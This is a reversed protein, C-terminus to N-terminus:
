AKKIKKYAEISMKSIIEQYVENYGTPLTANPANEHATYALMADIHLSELEIAKIFANNLDAKGEQILLSATKLLRNVNRNITM